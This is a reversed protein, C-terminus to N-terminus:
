FVFANILQNGKVEWETSLGWSHVYVEFNSGRIKAGELVRSEMLPATCGRVVGVLGGRGLFVAASHGVGM